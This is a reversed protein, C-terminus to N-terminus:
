SCSFENDGQCPGGSNGRGFMIFRTYAIVKLIVKLIGENVSLEEMFCRESLIEMSLQAMSKEHRVVRSCMGGMKRTKTM